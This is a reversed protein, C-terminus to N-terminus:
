CDRRSATRTTVNLSAVVLAADSYVIRGGRCAVLELANALTSKPVVLTGVGDLPASWHAGVHFRFDSIAILESPTLLEFRADFLVRGRASPLDFLLWDAYREDSWIPARPHIAVARRVAALAAPRYAPSLETDTRSAAAIALVVVVLASVSILAVNLRPHRQGGGRGLDLDLSRPLLFLMLLAFWVINRVAFFGGITTLAFAILESPAFRQHRAAILATAALGLIFFLTQQRISPAQWETVYKGFAPNVLVKRYYRVLEFGYPSALAAATPAVVLPILRPDRRRVVSEAAALTVLGAGLLVSGHMNAWVALIPLTAALRAPSPRNRGGWLIWVVAAFSPYAFTQARVGAAPLILLFLPIVVIAAALASAGGRRSLAILSGVSLLTAALTALVLVGMGGLRFLGYMGIQALWQQDVLRRGHGWVTLLERHPLGDQFVTRGGLLSLWSDAGILGASFVLGLAACCMVALLVFVNRDAARFLSQFGLSGAVAEARPNLREASTRM